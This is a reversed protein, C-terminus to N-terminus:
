RESLACVKMMVFYIFLYCFIFVNGFCLSSLNPLSFIKYSIGFLEQIM